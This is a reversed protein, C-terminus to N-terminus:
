ATLIPAAPDPAAAQSPRMAMFIPEEEKITKEPRFSYIGSVMSATAEAAPEAEPDPKSILTTEVDKIPGGRQSFINAIFGFVDGGRDEPSSSSGPAPVADPASSGAVKIAAAKAARERKAKLYAAAGGQIEGAAANQKQEQQRRKIYSAAAGQIEVAAEDKAKEQLQVEKAKSGSCGM